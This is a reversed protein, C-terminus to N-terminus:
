CSASSPFQGRQVRFTGAAKGALTRVTTMRDGAGQSHQYSTVTEVEILALANPTTEAAIKRLLAPDDTTMCSCALAATEVTLLAAAAVIWNKM